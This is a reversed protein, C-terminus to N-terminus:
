AGGGGGHARGHGSSHVVDVISRFGIAWTCCVLVDHFEAVPDNTWEFHDLSLAFIFLHVERSLRLLFFVEDFHPHVVVVYLPECPCTTHFM